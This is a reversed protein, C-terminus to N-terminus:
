DQTQQLAYQEDKLAVWKKSFSLIHHNLSIACNLKKRINKKNAIKLNNLIPRIKKDDAESIVSAGVINWSDAHSANAFSGSEDIYIKM